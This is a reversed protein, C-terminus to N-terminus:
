RTLKIGTMFLHTRFGEYLFFDEQYGYYRWESNWNIHKGVPVSLRAQPQFYDTNRSGNSVFMSGGLSLKAAVPGPVVIDMTGTVTHANDRYSSRAASLFPLNLYDITSRMTSRDYEGMLSIRKGGNPSWSVSLANDRSLFDYQIGAGHNYNQLVRASAQMSLSSLLQYRARVRGKQYNNLSTRFYVNDSDAGEYELNVSLKQSARVNLGGIAVNRDLKGDEQGGAPSFFPSANTTADGWVKRYGGRLTIRSTVDFLVDVQEQNYNVAQYPNLSVPSPAAASNVTLLSYASDHFRDTTWSQIIRLRRFPRIEFGVNGTTHPQNAAGTGITQQSSYFLLQSMSLFNGGAIESFNVTTKPQSFLFQGYVDIWSFPHATVLAKSYRSTGRIGYAQGLGNLQLTQGFIPATRDGRNVGTWYSQDDNKFTTGGQEVTVHFHNLEFRVGGRYNNTSDRLLTPVAYSNNADQVWEDIGHGYGSNREFALFPIIRKGPRFDLAVSMTRRHVDFTQENFGNPAFPNAYSPVANFYALNRYDFSLDYAAEKRATFRATTYPDGGWGLANGEIRDFLRHKPDFLTFDLGNLKPGERLNVVSRYQAFNGHQNISWRNGLDVSGTFWQEGAPAPSAAKEDAKAPEEAPKEDPKAATQVAKEETKAPEAQQAFAPVILM